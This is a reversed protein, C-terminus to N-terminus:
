TDSEEEAAVGVGVGAAVGVGAGVGVAVCFGAQVMYAGMANFNFSFCIACYKLQGFTLNANCQIPLVAPQLTM